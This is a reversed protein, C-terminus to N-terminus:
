REFRMLDVGDHEVRGVALVHRRAIGTLDDVGLALVDGHLHALERAGPLAVAEEELLAVLEDATHVRRDRGQLRVSRERRELRLPETNVGAHGNDLRLETTFSVSARRDSSVGDNRAGRRLCSRSPFRATTALVTDVTNIMPPSMATNMTAGPPAATRWKKKLGCSMHCANTPSGLSASLETPSPSRVFMQTKRMASTKMRMKPSLMAHVRIVLDGTRIGKRIRAM